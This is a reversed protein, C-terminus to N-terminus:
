CVGLCARGATNWNNVKLTSGHLNSGWQNSVIKQNDNNITKLHENQTTQQQANSSAFHGTLTTQASHSSM